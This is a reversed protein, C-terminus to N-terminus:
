RSANQRRKHQGKRMRPDYEAVVGGRRSLAVAHGIALADLEELLVNPRHEDFAAVFTVCGTIFRRL